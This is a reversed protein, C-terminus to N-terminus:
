STQTDSTRAPTLLATPWLGCKAGFDMHAVGARQRGLLGALESLAIVGGCEAPCDTWPKKQEREKKSIQGVVGGLPWDPVFM